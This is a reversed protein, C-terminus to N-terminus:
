KSPRVYELAEPGLTMAYLIMIIGVIIIIMLYGLMTLGLIRLVRLIIAKWPHEFYYGKFFWLLMIPVILLAYQNYRYFVTSDEKFFYLIPYLFLITILNYYSLIYANMVVNEYYNQGWKRFCIYTTIAFLPIYLLMLVSNYSSMFSLFDNMLPSNMKQSAFYEQMVNGM